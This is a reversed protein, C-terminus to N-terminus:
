DGKIRGRSKLREKFVAMGDKKSGSSALREEAHKSAPIPQPVSSVGGGETLTKKQLNKVQAKAQATQQVAKTNLTPGLEQYALAAAVRLGRPNNMIEPDQMYQGIRQAMPSNNDWGVVQGQANKKFADPHRQMVENLVQGKTAEAQQENKWTNIETRIGNAVEEKQLKRIEGKAWTRHGVDETTEAFSELEEMTYEAKQQGQNKDIREVLANQQEISKDLKRQSEMARNKWSVGMDDVDMQQAPLPEPSPLPTSTEPETQVVDPSTQQPEGEVAEVAPAELSEGVPANETPTVESGLNEEDPM